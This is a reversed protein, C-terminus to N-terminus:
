EGPGAPAMGRVSRRRWAGKVLYAHGDASLRVRPGAEYLLYGLRTLEFLTRFTEERSLALERALEEGAVATQAAEGRQYVERLVRYRTRERKELTPNRARARPQEPM